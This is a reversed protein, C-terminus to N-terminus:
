SSPSEGLKGAVPLPPDGLGAAMARRRCTAARALLLADARRWNWGRARAAQRNARLHLLARAAMRKHYGGTRWWFALLPLDGSHRITPPPHAAALAEARRSCAATRAAARAARRQRIQVACRELLLDLRAHRRRTPVDNQRLHPAVAASHLDSRPM